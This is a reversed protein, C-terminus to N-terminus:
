RSRSGEALTLWAALTASKQDAGWPPGLPKGLALVSERLKAPTSRLATAALALLDRERVRTADLGLRSSAAALAERFHHGDATHILAHSALISELALGQRGSSQLIVAAGVTHGRAALDLTVAKLAEYALAGARDAHRKLLRSADRLELGEAEHYPQRSGPLKPDAMEIRRRDVVEPRATSGGVAVLAAWGSHPAFGLVAKAWPM